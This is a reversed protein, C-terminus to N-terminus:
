VYCSWTQAEEDYFFGYYNELVDAWYADPPEATDGIWIQGREAEMSRPEYDGSEAEIIAIGQEFEKTTM